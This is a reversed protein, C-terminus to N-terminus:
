QMYGRSPVLEYQAVREYAREIFLAPLQRGGRLYPPDTGLSAQGFAMIHDLIKNANTFPNAHPYDRVLEFCGSVIAELREAVQEAEFREGAALHHMMCALERAL